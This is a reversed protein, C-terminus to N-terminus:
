RPLACRLDALQECVDWLRARQAQDLAPASPRVCRPEGSFEAFGDPGYFEGGHAAQAAAAYLIPRAGRQASQGFGRMAIWLAVDQLRDIPKRRPQDKRSDGLRTRAIGPHAALSALRGGARAQWELALMLTALKAQNYARQPAYSREGHLDDFDIRAHRHVLSSVWVVRPASAALLRPLLRATLAFHGVVGIGFALECGGATTRREFPPLIGANNILLDLMQWQALLEDAFCRVCNLDALDLARFEAGGAPALTRIAEAAAVGGERNRDALVVQAGRAALGLATYFGLGSAAGTVLARRGALEPLQRQCWAILENM